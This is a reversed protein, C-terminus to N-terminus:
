HFVVINNWPQVDDDFPREVLAEAIPSQHSDGGHGFALECSEREKVAGLNGVMAKLPNCVM